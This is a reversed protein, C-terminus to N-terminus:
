FGCARNCSDAAHGRSQCTSACLPDVTYHPMMTPGAAASSGNDDDNMYFRPDTLDMSHLSQGNYNLSTHVQGPSSCACLVLIMGIGLLPKM